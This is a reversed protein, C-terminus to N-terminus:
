INIAAHRCDDECFAQLLTPRYGVTTTIFQTHYVSADGITVVPLTGGFLTAIVNSRPIRRRYLWRKQGNVLMEIDLDPTHPDRLVGERHADISASSNAIRKTM